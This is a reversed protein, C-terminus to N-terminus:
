DCASTCVCQLFTAASVFECVVYRSLRTEGLGRYHTDYATINVLVQSGLVLVEHGLGRVWM